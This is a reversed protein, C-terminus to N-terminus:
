DDPTGIGGECPAGPEPTQPGQVYFDIFQQFRPDDVSDLSLQKSWASLVVPSTLGPYPAALLHSADGVVNRITTVQAEPLDPDFAISVGGHELIHVAVEEPVSASYFGCNGWPMHHDGGVAPRVPYEVCGDVHNSTQEGFDVVGDLEGDVENGSSVGGPDPTQPGIACDALDGWEAAPTTSFGETETSTKAKPEDGSCAALALSAVATLTAVILFSPRSRRRTTIM